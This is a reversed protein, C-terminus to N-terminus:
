SRVDIRFFLLIGTLSSIVALISFIKLFLNDINDREQWDM